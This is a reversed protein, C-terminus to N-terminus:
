HFSRCHQAVISLSTGVITLLVLADLHTIVVQKADRVWLEIIKGWGLKM